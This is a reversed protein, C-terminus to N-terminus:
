YSYGLGGVSAYDEAISYYKFKHSQVSLDGDGEDQVVFFVEERSLGKSYTLKVVFWETGWTESYFRDSVVEVESDKFREYRLIQRLVEKREASNLSATRHNQKKRRREEHEERKKRKRELRDITIQRSESSLILKHLHKAINKPNARFIQLEFGRQILVEDTERTRTYPNWLNWKDAKKGRRVWTPQFFNPFEYIPQGDKTGPGKIIIKAKNNNHGDNQTVQITYELPGLTIVGSIDGKGNIEADLGVIYIKNLEGLLDSTFNRYHRQMERNVFSDSARRNRSFANLADLAEDLWQHVSVLKRDRVIAYYSNTEPSNIEHLSAGNVPETSFDTNESIPARDRWPKDEPYKRDIMDEIKRGMTEGLYPWRRSSLKELSAVRMELDNLIESATKRM